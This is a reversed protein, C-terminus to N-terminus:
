VTNETYRLSVTLKYLLKPLGTTLNFMDVKKMSTRSEAAILLSDSM